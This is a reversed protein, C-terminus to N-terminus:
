AGRCTRQKGVMSRRARYYHSAMRAVQAKRLKSVDTGVGPAGGHGSREASVTDEDGTGATLLQRIVRNNMSHAELYDVGAFTLSYDSNEEHTVYNKARLYWLTFNLYERPFAMQKELELVSIGARGESLRRRHYLLSLVGLRRNMEGEIGYIFAESEFAPLPQPEATAHSADYQARRDPDSLVEYARKLVLFRELNGTKPNDPHFRLAMIRFVRQITETEAKRSIQLIEYYDPSPGIEPSGEGEQTADVSKVEDVVEEVQTEPNQEIPASPVEIMSQSLEETTASTHTAPTDDLPEFVATDRAVVSVSPECGASWM